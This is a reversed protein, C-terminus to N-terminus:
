ETESRGPECWRPFRRKPLTLRRGRPIMPTRESVPLPFIKFQHNIHNSTCVYQKNALFASLHKKVSLYFINFESLTLLFM